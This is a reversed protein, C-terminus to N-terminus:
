NCRTQNESENAPHSTCKLGGALQARTGRAVGSIEKRFNEQSLKALPLAEGRGM